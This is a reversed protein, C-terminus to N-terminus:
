TELVWRERSREREPFAQLRPRELRFGPDSFGQAQTLRFGPDSLGSGPREFRFGPDSM